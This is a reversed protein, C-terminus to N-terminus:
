DDARKVIQGFPVDAFTGFLPQTALKNRTIHPSRIGCLFRAFERSSKLAAANEARFNIAEQWLSDDIAVADASPLAVPQQSECWQCHGCNEEREDGFHLALANTQCGDQAFWDMQQQLRDLEMDQRHECREHLMGALEMLGDPTKVRKYCHMVKATQLDLWGRDSLYDLAVVVRGRDCGLKNAASEVDISFWVKAKKSQKLIGAVFERREGEFNGLIESSSVQPKFRFEDFRPTGGEIYGDLELYTMLTRLVLPRINHQGSLQFHSVAFSEEREFLDTILGEVSSREPTDGYVFNELVRLDDTCVLSECRSPEGDRGARGIEQAYNELSKPLNYHYVYRIDPKDVGMGFAITAVIVAVNSELFWEQNEARVEKKLGAHYPRAAIGASEIKKAVEEATRQLTVYVITAGATKEKLRSLLLEDRDCNRVPTAALNLNPRYFGTRVACEPKIEFERCIDELVTPTATATLALVREAGCRQAFKALKLYDPRFAHGWESICHAEDVAFLSIRCSEILGRFRENNFREPAVYLIRLSGSRLRSIVDRYEENSLTSDLRAADIGRATLADIQDKMLAILPSVVLTVGPLLLAPLQYCLSKGGGTPFVAAASDGNMLSTVAELQGPMFEEFGFKELLMEHLSEPIAQDSEDLTEYRVPSESVQLQNEDLLTTSM